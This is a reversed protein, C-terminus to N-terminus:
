EVCIYKVKLFCFIGFLFLCTNSEEGFSEVFVVLVKIWLLLPM